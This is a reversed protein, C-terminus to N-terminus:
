KSPQDPVSVFAAEAFAPVIVVRLDPCEARLKNALAQVVDEGMSMKMNVFLYNAM